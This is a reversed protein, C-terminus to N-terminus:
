RRTRGKQKGQERAIEEIEHRLAVRVILYVCVMFGSGALLLMIALTANDM